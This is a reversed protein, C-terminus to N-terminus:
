DPVKITVGGQLAGKDEFIYVSGDPRRCEYSPWQIAGGCQHMDYCLNKTGDASPSCTPSYCMQLTTTTAVILTCIDM